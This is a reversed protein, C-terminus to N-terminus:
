KPVRQKLEEFWNVVVRLQETGSPAEGGPLIGILRGDATLDSNRVGASGTELRGGRFVPIPNGVRFSPLTSIAIVASQGTGPLFFLEKGDRTWQPAFGVNKTVQYKAATPPFPQVVVVPPRAGEGM